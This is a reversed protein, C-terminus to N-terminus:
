KYIYLFLTYFSLTHSYFLCCCCHLVTGTFHISYLCVVCVYMDGKWQGRRARDEAEARVVPDIELLLTMLEDFGKNVDSRRKKERHRKRESRSMAALEEPTFSESGGEGDEGEEGDNDGAHDQEKKAAATKAATATKSIRARKNNSSSPPPPAQAEEGDDDVRATPPDM